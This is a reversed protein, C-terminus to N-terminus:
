VVGLGRAVVIKRTNRSIHKVADKIAPFLLEASGDRVVFVDNAPLQWVERLEGLRNDGEDYVDFGILEHIYYTDAPPSLMEDEGICLMAGVLQRADNANQIDTFTILMGKKYSQCHAISLLKESGNKVVHISSVGAFREPFDSILRVKVAGSVGHIGEIKGIPIFRNDM